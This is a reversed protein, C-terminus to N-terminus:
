YLKDIQQGLGEITNVLNGQEDFLLIKNDHSIEGTEPVRTYRINLLNALIRTQREPGSMLRWNPSTIALHTRFAALTEPTDREPDFSVLIFEANMKEKKLAEEVRQMKKVIVPCAGRCNTYAMSLVIKKGAFASFETPKGQDQNWSGKMAFLNIPDAYSSIALLAAATILTCNFIWKIM